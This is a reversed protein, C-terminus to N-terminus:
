GFRGFSVFANSPLWNMAAARMARGPPTALRVFVITTSSMVEESGLWPGTTGTQRVAVELRPPWMEATPLSM